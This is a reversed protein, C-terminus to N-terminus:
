CSSYISQYCENYLKGHLDGIAESLESEITAPDVLKMEGSAIKGRLRRVGDIIKNTQERNSALVDSLENVLNYVHIIDSQYGPIHYQPQMVVGPPYVAADLTGHQERM